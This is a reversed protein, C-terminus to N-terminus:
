SREAAEQQELWALVEEDELFRGAEASAIGQEMASLIRQEEEVGRALVDAAFQQPTRGTRSDVHVLEAELEPTIRVEMHTLTARQLGFLIEVAGLGGRV